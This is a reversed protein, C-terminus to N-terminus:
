LTTNYESSLRFSIHIELKPYVLTESFIEDCVSWFSYCDFFKLPSSIFISNTVGDLLSLNTPYAVFQSPRDDIDASLGQPPIRLSIPLSSSRFYVPSWDLFLNTLFALTPSFYLITSPPPRKNCGLMGWLFLTMNVSIDFVLHTYLSCIRKVSYYNFLKLQHWCCFPQNREEEIAQFAKRKDEQLDNRHDLFHLM